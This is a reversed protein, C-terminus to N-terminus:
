SAHVHPKVEEFTAATWRGDDLRVPVTTARVYHQYPMITGGCRGGHRALIVRTGVLDGDRDEPFGQVANVCTM